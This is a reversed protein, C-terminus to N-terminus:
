TFYTENKTRKSLFKKLLLLKRLYSREQKPKEKSFNLFSSLKNINNFSSNGFFDWTNYSTFTPEKLNQKNQKLTEHFKLAFSLNKLTMKRDLPPRCSEFNKRNLFSVFRFPWAFLFQDKNRYLKEKKKLLFYHNKIPKKLQFLSLNLFRSTLHQKSNLLTFKPLPKWFSFNPLQKKKSKISSSFHDFTLKQDNKMSGFLHYYKLRALAEQNKRQLKIFRPSYSNSSSNLSNTALASLLKTFKDNKPTKSKKLVKSYM